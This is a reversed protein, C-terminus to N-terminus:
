CCCSLFIKSVKQFKVDNIIYDTTDISLSQRKKNMRPKVMILDRATEAKSYGAVIYEVYQYVLFVLFLRTNLVQKSSMISPFHHDQFDFKM